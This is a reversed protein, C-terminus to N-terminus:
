IAGEVNPGSRFSISPWEQRIRNLISDNHALFVSRRDADHAVSLRKVRMFRDMTFADGDIWLAMEYYTPVVKFSRPERGKLCQVLTDLKSSESAALFLDNGILPDLLEISAASALARLAYESESSGGSHRVLVRRLSYGRRSPPVRGVPERGYAIRASSSSPDSGTLLYSM